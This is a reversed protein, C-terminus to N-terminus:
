ENAERIAKRIENRRRIRKETNKSKNGHDVVIFRWFQSFKMHESAPKMCVRGSSDVDIVTGAQDNTIRFFWTYVGDLGYNARWLTAKGSQSKLTKIKGGSPNYTTTAMWESKGSMRLSFTQHGEDSLSGLSLDFTQDGASADEPKELYLAYNNSDDLELTLYKLTSANILAYTQGDRLNPTKM